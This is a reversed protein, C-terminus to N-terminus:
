VFKLIFARENASACVGKGVSGGLTVTAVSSAETDVGFHSTHRRGLQATHFIDTRDEGHRRGRKERRNETLTRIRLTFSGRIHVHSTGPVIHAGVTKVAPDCPSRMPLM